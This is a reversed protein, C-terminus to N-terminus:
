SRAAAADPYCQSQATLEPAEELMVHSGERILRRVDNVHQHHLLPFLWARLNTGYQWLHQKAVARTLCDQVLDDARVFDRTLARAYRRLRPIQAELMQAFNFEREFVNMTEDVSLGGPQKEVHVAISSALAM